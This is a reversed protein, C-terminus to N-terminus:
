ALNGKRGTVAELRDAIGCLLRVDRECYKKIQGWGGIEAWMAVDRWNGHKRAEAGLMAMAWRELSGSGGLSDLVDVHRHRAVDIPWPISLGCLGHIAMRAVIFPLDFRRGNFSYWRGVVGSLLRGVEVLLEKEDDGCISRPEDWAEVTRGAYSVCVVRGTLPSLAARERAKSEAEALRAKIKDPDRANGLKTEAIEARLQDASISPVTEIDIAIDIM